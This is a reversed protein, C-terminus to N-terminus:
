QMDDKIFQENCDLCLVNIDKTARFSNGCTPCIYKRTSTKRKPTPTGTIPIDIFGSERNMDIPKTIGYEELVDIFQESPETLSWGIYKANSIILGRKEAETKFKKNHYTGNKSTDQINNLQCYYHICEHMLTAMINEIPRDLHEVSINIENLHQDEARWVKNLTFYGYCKRSSQMTIVPMPLTNGFYVENFVSFANELVEQWNKLM